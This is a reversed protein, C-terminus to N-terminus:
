AAFVQGRLVGAPYEVSHVNVYIEGDRIRQYLQAITNVPPEGEILDQATLLGRAWGRFGVAPPGAPTGGNALLFAVVRGNEGAQGFHLHAQTIDRSRKVKLEFWVKSFNPAFHLQVKGSNRTRM